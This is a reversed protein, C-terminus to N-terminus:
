IDSGLSFLSAMLVLEGTSSLNDAVGHSYPSLAVFTLQVLYILIVIAAVFFTEVSFCVSGVCLIQLRFLAETQFTSIPLLIDSLKDAM